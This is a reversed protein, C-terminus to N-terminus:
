GRLSWKEQMHDLAQKNRASFESAGDKIESLRGAFLQVAMLRGLKLLKNVEKWNENAAESDLKDLLTILDGCGLDLVHEYGNLSLESILKAGWEKQHASAQEYKKGDFEHAM